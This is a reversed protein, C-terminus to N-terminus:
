PPGSCSKRRRGASPAKRKLYSKLTEGELFDMVIYATNNEQFFDQIGVIGDAGHFKALVRAEDLFRNRNKQFVEAYSGISVQVTASYTHIRSVYGAMFFEKIAVRRDFLTDFGIYTIGFGGEGIVKGVLYRERLMTGPVLHHLDPVYSSQDFGCNPCFKVNEALQQFCRSCIHEM